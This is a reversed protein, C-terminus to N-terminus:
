DTENTREKEDDSLLGDILDLADSISEGVDKNYSAVWLMGAVKQLTERQKNTLFTM